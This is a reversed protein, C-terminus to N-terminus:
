AARVFPVVCKYKFVILIIVTFHHQFLTIKPKKKNILEPLIKPKKIVCFRSFITMYITKALLLKRNPRIFIVFLLHKETKIRKSYYYFPPTDFRTKKQRVIGNSFSVHEVPFLTTM